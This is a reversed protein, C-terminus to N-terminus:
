RTRAPTLPKERRLEGTLEVAEDAMAETATGGYLARERLQAVRRARPDADVADLYARVSEADRRPRHRRELLYEVRAFARELDTEPDAQRGRRLRVWWSLRRDLGTRRLGAVAGAIVVGGLALQERSPLDPLEVGGGGGRDTRTATDTATADPGTPTAGASDNRPTPTDVGAPTEPVGGISQNTDVELTGNTRASTLRSRETEQRPGAPTPDFRVWGVEPFYVEVWTHSNFGRVVYEDDNVEQGPTYGVVVRAPIDQTRLMTAMTTAYYTCYGREMEFLFADAVNGDPRDVDLSYERNNELWQEIARATEYPNDARATLRATRKTVRDPTSSPLQTYKERLQAPYDTGAAALAEPSDDVLASRVRYSANAALPETPELGGPVTVRTRNAVGGVSVPRWAAPMVRLESELRFEQSITRATAPPRSLSGRYPESGGTRIWGEGTYRDYSGIRWYRREPSTVTLRVAPSLEIDGAIRFQGDANILSAEITGADGAGGGDGGSGGLAVPSAAGTPVVSVAAPAVIMLALLVAVAEVAGASRDGADLDGFGVTGAAGVVGLLTVTVGADTTLVFYGLTLGGALAAGAYWRRLALYWTVFVPAPAVSLGWVAAQEIRLLSQGTLLEVNSEVMAGFQPDYPLSVLYVALGVALAVATVAVAAAVPLVRALLTAALLSAGVVGAFLVPEGAVDVIWYLVSLYSFVLAVTSLLALTRPRRLWQWGRGLGSSGVEPLAGSM